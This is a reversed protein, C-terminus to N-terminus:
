FHSFYHSDQGWVLTLLLLIVLIRRRVNAFQLTAAYKRWFSVILLYSAKPELIGDPRHTLLLIIVLFELEKTYTEKQDQIRRCLQTMLLFNAFIKGGYPM